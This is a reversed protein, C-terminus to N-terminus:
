PKVGASISRRRVQKMATSSGSSFPFSSPKRVVKETDGLAEAVDHENGGMYIWDEAFTTRYRHPHPHSTGCTRWPGSGTHLTLANTFARGTKPNLLIVGSATANRLKREEHLAAMLEDPLPLTVNKRNKRTLRVVLNKAWIIEQFILSVVDSARFGTFRLILFLLLDCGAHERM